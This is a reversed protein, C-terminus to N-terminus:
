STLDQDRWRGKDVWIVSCVQSILNVNCHLYSFLKLIGADLDAADDEKWNTNGVIAIRRGKRAQGDQGPPRTCLM